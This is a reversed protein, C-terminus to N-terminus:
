AEEQPATQPEAEAPETAAQSGAMRRRLFLLAGISVVGLLSVGILFWLSTFINWWPSSPSEDVEPVEEEEGQLEEFLEVPISEGDTEDDPLILSPASGSMGGTSNGSSIGSLNDSGEPLPEVVSFLLAALNNSENSEVLRDTEDAMVTFKYNGPAGRWFFTIDQSEGPLIPNNIEPPLPTGNVSATVRTIGAKGDGNNTMSVTFSVTSGAEAPVPSLTINQIGIDPAPLPALKDNNLENSELVTDKKDVFAGFSDPIVQAQWTFKRIVTEGPEIQNVYHQGRALGNVYYEIETEGSVDNGRNEIVAILTVTDGLQPTEPSWILNKVVLDPALTTYEITTENNTEDIERVYNNFDASLKVVHDGFAAKTTFEICDTQGTKLSKVPQTTLLEGDIYCAVHSGPATGPGANTINVSITIEEDIRPGAPTCSAGTIQFDVTPAPIIPMVSISKTNNTEDSEKILDGYDLIAQINLIRNKATMTFTHELTQGPEIANILHSLNFYYNTKLTLEVNYAASTGTNRIMVKFSVPKDVEPTAPICTISQLVLDPIGVGPIVIIATNNDEDTELVEDSPDIVAHVTQNCSGPFWNYKVTTSSGPSLPKVQGRVWGLGELYCSLWTGYSAGQGQNKVIFSLTVNETYSREAPTWSIGDIILDPGATIFEISFSNNTECSERTTDGIDLDARITHSGPQAVWSITREITATPALVPISFKGRSNGGIFVEYEGYRSSQSGQNSVLITFTVTEGASVTEPEWTIGRIVLDAALVSFALTMINNTENSETVTNEADATVTLVHDGAEAKWTLICTVSEGACIGAIYLSDLTTDGLNFDLRCPTSDANGANRVTASFTTTVGIAPATPPGSLTEVVLDPLPTDDAAAPGAVPILVNVGCMVCLSILVTVGTCARRIRDLM